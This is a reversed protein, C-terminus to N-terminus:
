SDHPVRTSGARGAARANPACRWRGIVPSRHRGRLAFVARARLYTGDSMQVRGSGACIPRGCDGCRAAGVNVPPSEASVSRLQVGVCVCSPIWRMPSRTAPVTPMVDAAQSRSARRSVANITASGHQWRSDTGARDQPHPVRTGTSSPLRYSETVTWRAKVRAIFQRRKSVFRIPSGVYV